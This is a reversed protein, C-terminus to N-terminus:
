RSQKPLILADVVAYIKCGFGGHSRGLAENDACNKNIRGSYTEVRCLSCTQKSGMAQKLDANLREEPNREPNECLSKRRDYGPLYFLGILRDSKFADDITMWRAKGQDTATAIM